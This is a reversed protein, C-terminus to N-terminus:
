LRYELQLGVTRPRMRSDWDPAGFPPRVTAGREDTVNNVFLSAAWRTSNIAFSLRGFAVNDSTGFVPTGFVTRITQESIYNGSMSFQGTLGSAGMAFEYAASAGATYEPSRNLRDGPLFLDYGGSRLVSDMTLDNWSFSVGLRLGDSPQASLAIDAGVGSASEGNVLASFGVTGVAINQQVDQWDIYYVAAEYGLRGDLVSGKIGVEYNRLTDADASPFDPANALAGPTQLAGSRFGEAYSLYATMHDSPHLTLVVRPSVADFTDTAKLNAGAAKDQMSVDDEFYRLGATLEFLGEGFIRTVEGFVAVSESTDIFDGLPGGGLTQVTRDEADRYFGGVSWRWAGTSNSNLLIEESFVESNLDTGLTVPFQIPTFDVAGVNDYSIGSTSSTITFAPLDYALKLGYVDYDIAISEDVFSGNTKGDGSTSPAGYDNRSFWGTLGISFRDTLQGNVKVRGTRLQSDNADKGTPRDIWGSNDEYGVVARAALKGDVIPVNIASDVRYNGGGDKTDSGSTRAKFELEDVNADATLVRVVGNLASAGYLTGQPGRLVEVRQMDYATADPALATRVFGFPVADLYFAIPSSGDFVPSSAAVGRVSVHSGGAYHETSAVGPVTNLVETVGSVTARDLNTGNLVSISIPVQELQEERKQATVIVEEIDRQADFARRSVRAPRERDGVAGSTEQANAIPQWGITSVAPKSRERIVVTRGDLLAYTFSTGALLQELAARPTFAGSITPVILQKMSESSPSILQFGTQKAWDNLADRLVQSKIELTILRTSDIQANAGAASLALAVGIFIPRLTKMNKGTGMQKEVHSSM